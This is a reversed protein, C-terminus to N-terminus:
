SQRRYLAALRGPSVGMLFLLRLAWHLLITKLYGNERWRRDSTHVPPRLVVITGARRLRRLFIVDEFLDQDPFGDIAHFSHRRVFIAQDGTATHLVRSRLNIAAALVRAILRRQSPGRLALEFCGGVVHERSLAAELADRSGGSPHTDAHLFVLVEGIAVAAGANLQAGRGATCTILRATAAAIEQTGDRSGGDAVIVEAAPGFAARAAEVTM